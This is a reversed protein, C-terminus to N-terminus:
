EVRDDASSEMRELIGRMTGFEPHGHLPALRPDALMQFFWPCRSEEAARLEAMAEELDGLAAYAPSTFSRLVFRERSLWQLRELIDRAEEGRGARALAYAQMANAIDLHPTRRVLDQALEAARQAPGNFGLIVAGYFLGAEHDPFLSLAKEIQAVSQAPQGALHHAWALRAHLWPAFPDIALASELWEFAEDFRHRSLALMVRLRTIWPDHPLHASVSFLELATTLDRDMHFSVWGLTPLLEVVDSELEPMSEEIHRIQKAAVEPSMFGYFEQTVCANALDVQASVLSPDLETAEILNQMGEQIRHRENSQWEYHGRLFREYAGHHGAAGYPAFTSAIASNSFEGGLRFVLRQVLESQLDLIQLKPVLMDEVWVQTGDKVVIMEARLRYHTPMALLTGALAFDANLAQGAEVATMGRRALTFVSDRALVSIWSSGMASLRTTAEESIAPGLHEDVNHGVAFPMIVLRALAGSQSGSWRVPGVLRYGRKYITQICQEPELRARLSSLCRPVSDWTVHVDGWLAEKLQAQSVIQGAHELLLRLAALEKPPLHIQEDGRSFTGDSRLRFNGFSFETETPGPRMATSFKMGAVSKIAENRTSAIRDIRQCSVVRLLL